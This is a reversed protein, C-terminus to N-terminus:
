GVDQQVYSADSVFFNNGYNEKEYSAGYTDEYGSCGYGYDGSSVAVVTSEPIFTSTNNDSSEGFVYSLNFWSM